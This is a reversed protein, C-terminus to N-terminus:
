SHALPKYCSLVSRPAPYTYFALFPFSVIKATIGVGNEPAIKTIQSGFSIWLNNSRPTDILIKMEVKSQQHRTRLTIFVHFAGFFRLVECFTISFMFSEAELQIFLKILPSYHLEFSSLPSRSNLLNIKLHKFHFGQLEAKLFFAQNQQLPKSKM